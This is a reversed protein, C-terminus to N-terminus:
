CVLEELQVLSAISSSCAWLPATTSTHGVMACHWVFSVWVADGEHLLCAFVHTPWVDARPITRRKKVRHIGPKFFVRAMMPNCFAVRLGYGYTELVHYRM